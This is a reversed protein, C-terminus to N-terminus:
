WYKSIKLIEKTLYNRLQRAETIAQKPKLERELLDKLGDIIDYLNSKFEGFEIEAEIIEQDSKESM